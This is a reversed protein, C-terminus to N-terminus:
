NLNPPSTTQIIIIFKRHSDARPNLGLWWHINVYLLKNQANRSPTVIEDAM